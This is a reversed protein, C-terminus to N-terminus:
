QFWPFSKQKTFIFIDGVLKSAEMVITNKDKFFFKPM